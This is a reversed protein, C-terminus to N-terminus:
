FVCGVMSSVKLSALEKIKDDLTKARGIGLEFGVGAWMVGANKAMLRIPEPVAGRLKAAEKFIRRVIIGAENDRLGEIRSM